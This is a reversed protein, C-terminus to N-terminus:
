VPILQYYLYFAFGTSKAAGLPLKKYKSNVMMKIYIQLNEIPTLRAVLPLPCPGGLRILPPPTNHTIVGEGKSDQSFYCCWLGPPIIGGEGVRYFGTPM